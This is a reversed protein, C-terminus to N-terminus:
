PSAKDYSLQNREDTTLLMKNNTISYAMTTRLLNLYTMENDSIDACYMKTSGLDGITITKGFKNTQGTLTYSGFYNNCGTYGSLTGDSNFIITPQANTAIVPMSGGGVMGGKLNWTGTLAPDTLPTPTATPVPVTTPPVTVTTPPPTAPAQTTCGAVLVAVFLAACTLVLIAKMSYLPLLPIFFIDTM